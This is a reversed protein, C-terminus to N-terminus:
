HCDGAVDGMATYACDPPSASHVLSMSSCALALAAFAFVFYGINLRRRDVSAPDSRGYKLNSENAYSM